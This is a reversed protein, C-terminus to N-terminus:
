DEPMPKLAKLRELADSAKEALDWMDEDQLCSKFIAMKVVCHKGAAREIAKVRNLLGKETMSRVRMLCHEYTATPNEKAAKEAGENQALAAAARLRVERCERVREVRERLLDDKSKLETPLPQNDVGIGQIRKSKRSGERPVKDNRKRKKSKKGKRNNKSDEWEGDSESDSGDSSSNSEEIEIGEAQANSRKEELESILGLSRLRANNRKINDIRKREYESKDDAATSPM